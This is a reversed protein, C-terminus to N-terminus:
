VVLIQPFIDYKKQLRRVLLDLHLFFVDGFSLLRGVLIQHPSATLSWSQVSLFWEEDIMWVPWVCSNRQKRGPSSLANKTKRLRGAGDEAGLTFIDWSPFPFIMKLLLLDPPYRPHYPSSFDGRTKWIGASSTKQTPKQHLYRWVWPTQFGLSKICASIIVFRRHKM